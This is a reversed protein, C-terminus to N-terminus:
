RDGPGNGLSRREEEGEGGGGQLGGRRVQLAAM